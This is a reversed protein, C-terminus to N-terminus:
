DRPSPSTYLLCINDDAPWLEVSKDNKLGLNERAREGMRILRDENRDAKTNGDMRKSPVLILQNKM